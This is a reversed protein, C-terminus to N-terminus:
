SHHQSEDLVFAPHHVAEPRQDLGGPDWPYGCIKGPLLVKKQPTRRQYIIDIIIKARGENKTYRSTEKELALVNPCHLLPELFHLDLIQLSRYILFFISRNILQEEFIRVVEHNLYAITLIQLKNWSTSQASYLQRTVAM